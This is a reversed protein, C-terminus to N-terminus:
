HHYPSIAYTITFGVIMRGRYRSEPVYQLPPLLYFVSIQPYGLGLLKATLWALYENRTAELSM